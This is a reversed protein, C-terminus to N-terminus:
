KKKESNKGRFIDADSMGNPVLDSVIDIFNMTVLQKARELLMPVPSSPENQEYYDCLKNIVAIVDSRSNIAGITNQMPTTAREDKVGTEDMDAM